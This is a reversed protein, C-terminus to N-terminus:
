KKVWMGGTEKVVKKEKLVELVPEIIEEKVDIQFQMFLANRIKKTTKPTELTKPILTQLDENINWPFIFWAWDKEPVIEGYFDPMMKSHTIHLLTASKASKPKFGKVHKVALILSQGTDTIDDVVLVSKNRIDATLPQAIKAMGDPTATVGWHETKISYLNKIVLHDCILRAPAWGGRTIGIVADLSLKASKIKKVLDSTWEHVEAWSVIKCKFSETM